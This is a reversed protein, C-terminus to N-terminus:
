LFDIIERPLVELVPKGMNHWVWIIIHLVSMESSLAIQSCALQSSCTDHCIMDLDFLALWHPLHLIYLVNNLQPIGRYMVMCVSM